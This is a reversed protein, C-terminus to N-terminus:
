NILFRTKFFGLIKVHMLISWGMMKFLNNKVHKNHGLHDIKSISYCVLQNMMKILPYRVMQKTLIKGLVFNNIKQSMIFFFYFQPLYTTFLNLYIMLFFYTPLHYGLKSVKRLGRPM